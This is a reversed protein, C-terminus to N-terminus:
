AVQPRASVPEEATLTVRRVFRDLLDAFAKVDAATWDDLLEGFIERLTNHIREYAEAGAPTLALLTGRGDSPDLRREIAGLRELADAHRSMTSPTIGALGAADAIRVPQLLGISTLVPLLAQEIPLSSSAVLRGYLHTRNSRELLAVVSREVRALLEPDHHSPTMTLQITSGADHM